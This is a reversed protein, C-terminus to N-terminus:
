SEARIVVAPTWIAKNGSIEGLLFYIYICSSDREVYQYIFIYQESSGFEGKGVLYSNVIHERTPM